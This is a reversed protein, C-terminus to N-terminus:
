ECVVFGKELRALFTRGVRLKRELKHQHGFAADTVVQVWKPKGASCFVETVRGMDLLFLHVSSFVKVLRDLRDRRIEKDTRDEEKAIAALEQLSAAIVQDLAQELKKMEYKVAFDYIEKFDVHDVDDLEHPKPIGIHPAKLLWYVAEVASFSLGTKIVTELDGSENMAQFVRSIDTTANFLRSVKRQLSRRTLVVQM